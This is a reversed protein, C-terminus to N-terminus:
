NHDSQSDSAKAPNLKTNDECGRKDVRRDASLQRGAQGSLRHPPNIPRKKPCSRERRPSPSHPFSILHLSRHGKHVKEICSQPYSAESTTQLQRCLDFPQPFPISSLFSGILYARPLPKPGAINSSLSTDSAVDRDTNLIRCPPHSSSAHCNFRHFALQGLQIRLCRPVECGKERRTV